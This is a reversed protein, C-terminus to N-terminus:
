RPQLLIRLNTDVVVGTTEIAGARVLPALALAATTVHCGPAAILTASVQM